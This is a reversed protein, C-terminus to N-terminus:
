ATAEGGGGDEAQDHETIGDSGGDYLVKLRDIPLFATETWTLDRNFWRHIDITFEIWWGVHNEITAPDVLHFLETSRVTEGPAAYQGLLDRVPRIDQEFKQYRLGDDVMDFVTIRPGNTEGDVINLSKLGIAKVEVQVELGLGDARTFLSAEIHTDAGHRGYRRAYIAGAALVLASALTGLAEAISWNGTTALEM